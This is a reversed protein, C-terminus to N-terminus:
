YSVVANSTHENMYIVPEKFYHQLQAVLNVKRIRTMPDQRSPNTITEDDDNCDENAARFIEARIMQSFDVMNSRKREFCPKDCYGDEGSSSSAQRLSYSLSKNGGCLIEDRGNSTKIFINPICATETTHEM